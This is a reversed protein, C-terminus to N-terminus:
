YRGHAPEKSPWAIANVTRRGGTKAKYSRTIVPVDEGEAAHDVTDFGPTFAFVEEIYEIKGEDGILVYEYFDSYDECDSDAFQMRLVYMPNGAASTRSDCSVIRIRYLGDPAVSYMGSWRSMPANMMRLFWLDGQMHDPVM